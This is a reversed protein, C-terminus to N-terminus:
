RPSGKKYDDILQQIKKLEDPSTPQTSLAQQM